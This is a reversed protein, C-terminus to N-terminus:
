QRLQRRNARATATEMLVQARTIIEALEALTMEGLPVGARDPFDNRWQQLAFYFHETDTKQVFLKTGARLIVILPM